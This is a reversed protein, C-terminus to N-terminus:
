CLGSQTRLPFLRRERRSTVCDRHIINHRPNELVSPAEFPVPRAINEGRHPAPPASALLLRHGARGPVTEQGGKGNHVRCPRLRSFLAAM